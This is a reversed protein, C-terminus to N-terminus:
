AAVGKTQQYRMVSKAIRVLDSDSLPPRCRVENDIRLAALIADFTMGWRRMAGACSTLFNDRGGECILSSAGPAGTHVIVESRAAPRTLEDVLWQPMPAVGVMQPESSAEWGYPNGSIHLSPPAVVYGADGKVDVGSGLKGASNGVVVGPHKFYFHRGGGGTMVEATDPFRGHKVWLDDLSDDGGHRPDVDIAVIGSIGGTVIAVNAWPWKKWWARIVEKNVTANKLGNPTTPHKGKSACDPNRCTCIPEGKATFAISHLPVVHWGHHIYDSLAEEVM